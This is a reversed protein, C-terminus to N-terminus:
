NAPLAEPASFSPSRVRGMEQTLNYVELVEPKGEAEKHRVFKVRLVDGIRPPSFSSVVFSECVEEFTYPVRDLTFSQVCGNEKTWTQHTEVVAETVVITRRKRDARADHVAEDKKYAGYIMLGLGGVLMTYFVVPTLPNYRGKVRAIKGIILTFVGAGLMIAVGLIMM